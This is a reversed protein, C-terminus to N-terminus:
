YPSSRHARGAAVARARHRHHLGQLARAGHVRAPGGGAPPERSGASTAPSGSGRLHRAPEAGRDRVPEGAAAGGGGQARGPSRRRGPAPDGRLPRLRRPPPRRAPRRPLERRRRLLPRRRQPRAPGEGGGGLRGPDERRPQHPGRPRLDAGGDGDPPQLPRADEGPAAARAAGRADPGDGGPRPREDARGPDAGGARPARHRHVAGEAADGELAREGQAQGLGRPGAAGALRAPAGRRRPPPM